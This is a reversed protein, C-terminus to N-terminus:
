CRVEVTFEAVLEGGSTVTAVYDGPPRGTVARLAQGSAPATTSRNNVGEFAIVYPKALDSSNVFQFLVYGLGSRCASIVRVEADGLAAPTTDCAITVTRDSVVVGARRVVVTYTGDNRGTVPMRWWDLSAVTSQRPSLGQFEIRYAAASPRPNVINTDVRGNGGLCSVAHMVEVPTVTPQDGVREIRWRQSTWDPNRPALSATAGAVIDGAPGVVGSRGLVGTAPDWANVIHAVPVGAAESGLSEFRWLQSSWAVQLPHLELRASPTYGGEGDPDGGRTLYHETGGITTVLRFDGGGAADARWTIGASEGSAPAGGLAVEADPQAPGGRDTTMLYSTTPEWQSTLAYSDGDTVLDSEVRSLLGQTVGDYAPKPTMPNGPDGGSWPAGFTYLDKLVDGLKTITPHIWSRDDGFDWLLLAEVGPETAAIRAIEQYIGRQAELEGASPADNPDSTEKAMVDLETIFVKLGADAFRRFNARISAYDPVSRHGQIHMQFGVGDIPVGDAKLATAYAFLNDSKTGLQEAGYDNIILLAQDDAEHAWEFAQAIYDSGIEQYEVYETRLGDDDQANGNDAFAENVVDWVWVEGPRASAMADVYRKLHQEHLGQGRPLGAYWSSKSNELPYVLSHGHVLLNRDGSHAWDVIDELGATSPEAAPDDWGIWPLYATATVANFERAAVDAYDGSDWAPDYGHLVGGVALGDPAVDRWTTDQAGGASIPALWLAMSALAALSAVTVAISVRRRGDTPTTTGSTASVPKTTVSPNNVSTRMHTPKETLVGAGVACVRSWRAPTFDAVVVFGGM